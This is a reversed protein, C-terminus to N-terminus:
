KLYKEGGTSLLYLTEYYPLRFLERDTIIGALGSLMVGRGLLSVDLGAKDLLGDASAIFPMKLGFRWYVITTGQPIAGIPQIVFIGCFMFFAVMFCGLSCFIVLPAKRSHKYIVGEAAQEDQILKYEILMRGTKQFYTKIDEETEHHNLKMVISEIGTNSKIKCVYQRIFIEENLTQGCHKCVTTEKKYEKLASIVKKINKKIKEGIRNVLKFTTAEKIEKRKTVKLFIIILDQEHLKNIADKEDTAEIYGNRDKGKADKAQYKFVSMEGEKSLVLFQM